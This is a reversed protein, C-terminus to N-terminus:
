KHIFLYAGEPTETKGSMSAYEDLQVLLALVYPMELHDM